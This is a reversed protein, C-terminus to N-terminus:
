PWEMGSWAETVMSKLKKGDTSILWTNCLREKMKVIDQTSSLDLKNRSRNLRVQSLLVKLRDISSLNIIKISNFLCFGHLAKQLLLHKMHLNMVKKKMKIMMRTTKYHKMKKRRRRLNRKRHNSSSISWRQNSLNMQIVEKMKMRMM